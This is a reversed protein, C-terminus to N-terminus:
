ARCQLGDPTPDDGPAGTPVPLPSSGLFLFDLVRVADTIQVEGDDDADAADPCALPKGGVFLFTLIAIPDSIDLKGNRDTDGRIFLIGDPLIDVRGNVFIFSNAIEPPVHEADGQSTLAVLDNRAAHSYAPDSDSPVRAGDIFQVPTTGVEAEARIRFLLDLVETEENPPLHYCGSFLSFVCGVAIFGEDVGSSGPVDNRNDVHSFFFSSGTDLLEESPEVGAAELVEEDFDVSLEYGVAEGNSSMSFPVTAIDGARGATDALRFRADIDSPAAYVPGPYCRGTDECFDCFDTEEQVTFTGAALEPLIARGSALDVLEGTQLAMPYEGAPLHNNLYVEIIFVVRDQCPQIWPGDEREAGLYGFWVVGESSRVGTLDDGDDGTFENGSCRAERVPNGAISIKGSFGALEIATSLRITIEVIRSEDHGGAAVVDLVELRATPDEVPSEEVRSDCPLSDGTPDPGPDPFPAALSSGRISRNWLFDWLDFLEKRAENNTGHFEGNDNIDAADLCGPPPGDRNLYNSLYHCDALSVRGDGNVDGRIFDQSRIGPAPGVLLLCLVGPILSRTAGSFCSPRPFLHRNWM